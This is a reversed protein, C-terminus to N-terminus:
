NYLEDVLKITIAKQTSKLASAVRRKIDNGFTRSMIWLEDVPHDILHGMSEIVINFPPYYKSHLTEDDDFFRADLDAPIMNLIRAPCYIGLSRNAEYLKNLRSSLKRKMDCVSDVFREMVNTEYEKQKQPGYGGLTVTIYISRGYESKRINDIEFSYYDFLNRLSEETFYSIHEHVLMSIDGNHIEEECDPVAFIMVSDNNVIRKLGAFVNEIDYIHELFGHSVVCGYIGDLKESPFRDSIVNVNYQSWYENFASSCEVGIANAGLDKLLKLLYGKGSGLELIPKSMIDKCQHMIYKLFDEAYSAGLVSEDMATGLLSGYTYAKEVLQKTRTNIQQTLVGTKLSIGLDFDLTDPIGNPNSPQNFAGMIFPLNTFSAITKINGSTM